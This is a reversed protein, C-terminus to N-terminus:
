GAKAIAQGLALEAESVDRFDIGRSALKARFGESSAFVSSAAAASELVIADDALRAYVVGRHHRGAGEVVPDLLRDVEVTSVSDLVLMVPTLRSARYAATILSAPIAGDAQREIELLTAVQMPANTM